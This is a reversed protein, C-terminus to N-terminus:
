ALDIAIARKKTAQKIAAEQAHRYFGYFIFVKKTPSYGGIYFAWYGKGSPKKGHEIQYAHTSVFM